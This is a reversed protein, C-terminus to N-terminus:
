GHIVERCVSCLIFIFCSITEDHSRLFSVRLDVGLFFVVRFNAQRWSSNGGRAFEQLSHSAEHM